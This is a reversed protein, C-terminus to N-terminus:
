QEDGDPEWTLCRANCRVESRGGEAATAIVQWFGTFDDIEIACSNTDDPGPSGSIEIRTLFCVSSSASTLTREDSGGQREANVWTDEILADTYRLAPAAAAGAADPSDPAPGTGTVADDDFGESAEDLWLVAVSVLAAVLACILLQKMNKERGVL